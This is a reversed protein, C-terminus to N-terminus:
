QPNQMQWLLGDRRRTVPTNPNPAGQYYGPWPEYLFNNPMAGPESPPSVPVQPTYHNPDTPNFPSPNPAPTPTPTPAPTPSPAPAPAGGNNWPTQGAVGGPAGPITNNYADQTWSPAKGNSGTNLADWPRIIAATGTLENPRGSYAQGFNAMRADANDLTNQVQSLAFDSYPNIGNAAYYDAVSGLGGGYMSSVNQQQQWDVYQKQEPTINASNDAWNVGGFGSDVGGERILYETSNIGIPALAKNLDDFSINYQSMAATIAEPNTAYNALYFERMNQEDQPTWAM